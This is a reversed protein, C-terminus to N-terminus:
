SSARSFPIAVWELIRALLIGHVASGPLSYDMPDFLTPCSQTVLVKEKIRYSQIRKKLFFFLSIQVCLCSLCMSLLGQSVRTINGCALFSGSTLLFDEFTHKGPTKLPFMARGM